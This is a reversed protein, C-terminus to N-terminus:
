HVTDFAGLRGTAPEASHQVCRACAHDLESSVPRPNRCGRRQSALDEGFWGSEVERDVHA